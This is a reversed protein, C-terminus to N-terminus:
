EKESYELFPCNYEQMQERRLLIIENILNMFFDNSEHDIATLPYTREGLINEILQASLRKPLDQKNAIVIVAAYPSLKKLKPLLKQKTATVNQPSSDTVIIYLYFNRLKDTLLPAPSKSALNDMIEGGYDYINIKLPLFSVIEKKYTNLLDSIKSVKGSFLEFLTTKGVQDFGVFAFNLLFIKHRLKNQISDSELPLKDELIDRVHALLLRDEKQLETNNEGNLQAKGLYFEFYKNCDLPCEFCEPLFVQINTQFMHFQFILKDKRIIIKRDTVETDNLTQLYKILLEQRKQFNYISM